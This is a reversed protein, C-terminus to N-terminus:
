MNYWRHLYAFEAERGRFSAQCGRCQQSTRGLQELGLLPGNRGDQQEDDAESGAPDGVSHGRHDVHRLSAPVLWTTVVQSFHYGRNEVEQSCQVWQGVRDDVSPPELLESWVGRPQDSAPSLRLSSHVRHVHSGEVIIIRRRTPSLGKSCQLSSTLGFRFFCIVLRFRM